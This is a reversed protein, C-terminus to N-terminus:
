SNITSLITNSYLDVQLCDPKDTKYDYGFTKEVPKIYCDKTKFYRSLAKERCIKKCALSFPSEWNLITDTLFDINGNPM